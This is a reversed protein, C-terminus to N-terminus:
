RLSSYSGHLKALAKELLLLWLENGQTRAFIPAGLPYCPFYDDVTVTVWEGNKCIKVRYIGYENLEKTIFLRELLAPREALASVASLLWSDHM